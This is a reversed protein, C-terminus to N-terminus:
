IQINGNYYYSYKGDLRSHYERSTKIYGVYSLICDAIVVILLPLTYTVMM